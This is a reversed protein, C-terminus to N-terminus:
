SQLFEKAFKSVLGMDAKGQLKPKLEAMVKGLDQMNQAGVSSIASEVSSKVEEESMQEPLYSKVVEIEALEKEALEAREAKKYQEAADKRQKIMKEIISTVDADSLDRREDVEKQKIAASLMRLTMLLDKEKNRMAAKIDEQIKAKLSQEM